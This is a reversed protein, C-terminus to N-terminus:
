WLVTYIGALETNPTLLESYTVEHTNEILNSSLGVDTICTHTHTVPDLRLLYTRLQETLRWDGFCASLTYFCRSPFAVDVLSHGIYNRLVIFRAHARRTTYVSLPGHPASSLAQRTTTWRCESLHVKHGDDSLGSTWWTLGKSVVVGM